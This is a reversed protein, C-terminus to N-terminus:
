GLGKIKKKERRRVSNEELQLSQKMLLLVQQMQHEKGIYEKELRRCQDLFQL